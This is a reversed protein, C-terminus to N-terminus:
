VSMSSPTKGKSTTYPTKVIHVDASAQCTGFPEEPVNDNEFNFHLEPEGRQEVGNLYLFGKSDTPNQNTWVGVQGKIDSIHFLYEGAPQADFRVWNTDNDKLPGFHQSAIPDSAVTDAYNGLWKYMSITCEATTTNYTPICYGFGDFSGNVIARYSYTKTVAIAGRTGTGNQVSISRPLGDEAFALVSLTGALMCLCLAWLLLRTIRNQKM